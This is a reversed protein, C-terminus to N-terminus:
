IHSVFDYGFSTAMALLDFRQRFKAFIFGSFISVASETSQTRSVTIFFIALSFFSLTTFTPVLLGFFTFIVSFYVCLTFFTFNGTLQCRLALPIFMRFSELGASYHVIGDEGSIKRTWIGQFTSVTRFLCLLIMVGIVRLRQINLRDAFLAMTM